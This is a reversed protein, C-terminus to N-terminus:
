RLRRLALEPRTRYPAVTVRVDAAVAGSPAAVLPDLAAGAIEPLDQALRSVRLLVDRLAALDAGPQGRYGLLLPAGKVSRILGDAEVDSLPLVRLQRDGYIEAIPGATGFSIMPGFSPHTVVEIATDIGADLMAQVIAPGPAAADWARAVEAPTQLGFYAANGPGKLVVPFGIAAAQDMADDASLVVRSAAVAIGYARLIAAASATDLTAGDPELGLAADVIARAADHDVDAFEPVTGAPQARWEVVEVVRALAQAAAEPYPFVPVHREAPAFLTTTEEATMFNALVPKAHPAAAVAREVASAVEAPPAALPHLFAVIVSDVADDALLRALVHEYAPALTAGALTVPNTVAGGPGVLSRLDAATAESLPPVSLGADECADAVLVAAGGANALIGVRRGAPLPQHALLDAVDFLQSLTDVRIVGTHKFL